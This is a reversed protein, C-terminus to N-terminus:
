HGSRLVVRGHWDDPFAGASDPSEHTVAPSEKEVRRFQAAPHFVEELPSLSGDIGGHPMRGRRVDRGMQWAFWAPLAFAGAVVAIDAWM